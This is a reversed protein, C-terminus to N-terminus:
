RAVPCLRAHAVLDRLPSPWLELQEEDIGPTVGDESDPDIDVNGDKLFERVEKNLGSALLNLKIDEDAEIKKYIKGFRMERVIERANNPAGCKTQADEILVRLREVWPARWARM